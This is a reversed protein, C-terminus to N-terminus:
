VGSTGTYTGAVPTMGLGKRVQIDVVIRNMTGSALRKKEAATTPWARGIAASPTASGALATVKQNSCTDTAGSGSYIGVFAMPQFAQAPCDFEFRGTTCINLSDRANDDQRFTKEGTNLGIKEDAVGIFYEAIGLQNLELSGQANMASAPRAKGTAPHLYCLDGKEIPYDSDWLVTIINTDGEM